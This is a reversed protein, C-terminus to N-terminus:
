RHEKPPLFVMLLALSAFGILTPAAGAQAYFLGFIATGAIQGLALMFFTVGVGAAPSDKTISAGVVLLVGSLTVYGAGGLAVAPYLWGSFTHSLALLLLPTAMSLQSLRYIQKMSLYRAAPGTMVGAIGAAGSVLWLLSSLHPNVGLHNRLIDPGFNWWAASSMGSIFAIIILCKMPARLLWQHGRNHDPNAKLREAPLYRIAPLLCLVAMVGFVVCAIRWGGPVFALVPVTLIIGAGTGANIVTNVMAQNNEAVTRTVASALSPSALGSSLGAIFLGSALMAPSHSAALLLMGAAACLAAIVAPLRPGFRSVLFSAGVVSLCYALYSCAAIIGSLRPTFPIDEAISPMMLGWSFRAMGYTVAILSFGTIGLALSTRM